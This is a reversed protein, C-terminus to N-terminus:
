HWCRKRKEYTNNSDSSIPYDNQPIFISLHELLTLFVISNIMLYIYLDNLHLLNM